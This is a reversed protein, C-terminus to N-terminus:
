TTTLGIERSFLQSKVHVRGKPASLIIDGATEIRLLARTTDGDKETMRLLNTHPTALVVTEVGPTDIM